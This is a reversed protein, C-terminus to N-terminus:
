FRGRGGFPRGRGRKSEREERIEIFEEMQEATLVSALQEELSDEIEEMRQRVASREIVEQEGLSEFFERRQDVSEEIIPLLRGEQGASLDLRESLHMLMRDPSMDGRRMCEGRGRGRAGKRGQSRREEKLKLYEEMQEDTLISALQTDVASAVAQREERAARRLAREQKGYKRQIERHRDHSEEVVPALLGKQEETLGINEELHSIIRAPSPPPSPGEGARAWAAGLTLASAAALTVLARSTARKAAEGHKM